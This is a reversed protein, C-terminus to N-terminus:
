IFQYFQYVSMESIQKMWKKKKKSYKNKQLDEWGIYLSIYGYKYWLDFLVGPLLHLSM